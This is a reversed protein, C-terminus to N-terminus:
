LFGQAVIGTLQGNDVIMGAVGGRFQIVARHVNRKYLTLLMLQLFDVVGQLRHIVAAVAAAGDTCLVNWIFAQGSDRRGPVAFLM